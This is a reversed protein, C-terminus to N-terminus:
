PRRESVMNARGRAPSSDIRRLRLKFAPMSEMFTSLAFAAVAATLRNGMDGRLFHVPPGKGAATWLSDSPFLNLRTLLLGGGCLGWVDGFSIGTSITESGVAEVVLLSFAVLSGLTRSGRSTVSSAAGLRCLLSLTCGVVGAFSHLNFSPCTIQYYKMGNAASIMFFPNNKTANTPEFM